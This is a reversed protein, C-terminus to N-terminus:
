KRYMPNYISPLRERRLFNNKLYKADPRERTEQNYILSTFLVHERFLSAM